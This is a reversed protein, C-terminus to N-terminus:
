FFVRGPSLGRQPAVSGWARSPGPIVAALAGQQVRLLSRLRTGLLGCPAEAAWLGACASEDVGWSGGRCETQRFVPREAVLRPATEGRAGTEDAWLGHPHPGSGLAWRSTHM